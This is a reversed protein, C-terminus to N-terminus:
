ADRRRVLFVALALALAAYAGLVALGAWPALPYYGNSPTYAYHVQSYRPLSQQIAFGAAPTLRLLWQAANDPLVPSAIALIFPVVIAVIVATIAGASRRLVAGLALALVSAIALLAATGVIVRLETLSSSPFLYNGNARLTHVGLPVAVAAAVLGTVFTVSGIVIAKAALVRGRRPSATLTTLILGHRYEATIFLTAVVILAILGAFGGSLSNGITQGGLVGGGVAPAIDGSGSLTFTRGSRRFLGPTLTPYYPGGGIADGSWTGNPWRGQLSLHDFDATALTSPNTGSTTVPSTVFLGAQV